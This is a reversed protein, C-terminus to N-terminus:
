NQKIHNSTKNNPSYVNPNVIYKQHTSGETKTSHKDCCGTIKRARLDGTLTAIGATKPNTSAHIKKFDDKRM